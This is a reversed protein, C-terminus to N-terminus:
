MCMGGTVCVCAACVSERHRFNVKIMEEEAKPPAACMPVHQRTAKLIYQVEQGRTGVARGERESRQRWIAGRSGAPRATPSQTPDHASPKGAWRCAFFCVCLCVSVSRLYVRACLTNAHVLSSSMPICKRHGRSSAALHLPKKGLLCTM